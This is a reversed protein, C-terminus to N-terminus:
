RTQYGRRSRGSLQARGDLSVAKVPRGRREASSRTRPAIGPSLPIDPLPM